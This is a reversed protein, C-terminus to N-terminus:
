PAGGGIAGFLTGREILAAAIATIAGIAGFALLEFLRWKREDRRRHDERDEWRERDFMALHEKPSLGPNWDIFSECTRPTSIANQIPQWASDESELIRLMELRTVRVEEHQSWYVEHQISDEWLNAAGVFCMPMYDLGEPLDYFPHESGRWTRPAAVLEHTTKNRLALLGCKECSPHKSDEDSNFLM